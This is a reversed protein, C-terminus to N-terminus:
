RGESIVEFKETAHLGTGSDPDYSSYYKIDEDGAHPDDLWRILTSWSDKHVVLALDGRFGNPGHPLHRVLDGIKM